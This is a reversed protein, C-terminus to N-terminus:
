VLALVDLPHALRHQAPIEEPAMAGWLALGFDVGAAQASGGDHHSDGIFLVEKPKAGSRELYLLIGDPAPKPAAVASATIVQDFYPLLALIEPRDIESDFRSTVIGMRIGRAKLGDLMPLIGEFTEICPHDEEIYRNWLAEAAAPDPFGCAIMADTTTLMLADLLMKRTVPVGLLDRVVKKFSELLPEGSRLLTNDIDLLVHKYM